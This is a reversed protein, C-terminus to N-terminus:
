RKAGAARRGNTVVRPSPVHGGGARVGGLFTRTVMRSLEAPSLTDDRYMCVARIMAFLMEAALRPHRHARGLEAAIRQSVRDVLEARQRQWQARETADWRAEHRQLLVFFDRRTWFYEIITRTLAEVTRALPGPQALVEDIVARLGHLGEVLTAFYLEEKSPFYRYLTGKGIQLRTSIDDTLVEHYPRHSFIDTAARLIAARTDERKKRGRM